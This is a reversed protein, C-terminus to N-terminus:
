MKRGKWNNPVFGGLLGTALVYPPYVVQLVVFALWRQRLGLFKSVPRLFWLEALAKGCLFVAAMVQLTGNTFLLAFSVCAMAQISWVYFALVVTLVSSNHRWKGAWRLRQRVFSPLTRAARTTVVTHPHTTFQIAGPYHAEIKRMLFEDDGSPVHYNGEYGAVEGFTAKRFALNAGNCMIPFGWALAAAASGILSSFELAQLSAFFTDQQIAVGGCIMQVDRDSFGATLGELWGPAVRCDADTTVIISGSAQTIGTALAQKKGEGGSPVCRFRRDQLAVGAAIAATADKSADDVVIVEFSSITQRALDQLLMELCGEENRAAIIVSVTYPPSKVPAPRPRSFLRKWGARLGTIFSIYSGSLFALLYVM